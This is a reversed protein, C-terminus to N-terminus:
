PQASPESRRRFALVVVVVCGIAILVLGPLQRSLPMSNVGAQLLATIIAGFVLIATVDVAPARALAAFWTGVYAALILGTLLAWSWRHLGIAALTSWRVTVLTYGILLVVGLGMRAAAVTLPSLSRLLRKVVIVEASWLLTAALIMVEGTGANIGSVGGGLAAQGWVLLGIAAVHWIGVREQLLPVALLAVWVVLTKQIFAANPSSVRALGEFFLVFPVSGGIVAVTGLGAWQAWGVPRTFGEGTRRATAAALVAALIVAAVLNKATTYVAPSGFAKVGYSNTFVAIGSIVAAVLALAVGHVRAAELPAPESV